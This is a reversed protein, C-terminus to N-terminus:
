AVTNYFIETAVAIAKQIEDPTLAEPNFTAIHKLKELTEASIQNAILLLETDQGRESQMAKAARVIKAAARDLHEVIKTDNMPRSSGRTFYMLAASTSANGM